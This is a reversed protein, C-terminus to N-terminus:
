ILLSLKPGFCDVHEFFNYMPSINQRVKLYLNLGDYHYTHLINEYYIVFIENLFTDKYNVIYIVFHLSFFSTM